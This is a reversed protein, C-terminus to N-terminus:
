VFVIKDKINTYYSLRTCNPKHQESIIIRKNVDGAGAASLERLSECISVVGSDTISTDFLYLEMLCSSRRVFLHSLFGAGASTISRNGALNLSTLTCNTKLGESLNYVGTDSINCNFLSLVKLSKNIALFSGIYCMGTDGITADNTIWVSTLSTNHVLGTSLIQLGENHISCNDIWLVQLTTNCTIATTINLM